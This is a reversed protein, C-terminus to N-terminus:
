KTNGGFGFFSSWTGATSSQQAGTKNDRGGFLSVSGDTAPAAGGDAAANTPVGAFEGPAAVVVDPLLGVEAEETRGRLM